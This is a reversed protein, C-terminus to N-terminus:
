YSQGWMVYCNGIQETFFCKEECKNINYKFPKCLTKINKGHSKMLLKIQEETEKDEFWPVVVLRNQKINEIFNEMNNCIVVHDNLKTTAINLMDNQIDNLIQPITELKELELDNKQKNYRKVIRVTNKAIDYMGVEIRIPIGQQEWYNYKWGPTHETRSDLEVLLNLELLKVYVNNTYELLVDTKIKKNYIPILVIQIPAVKPPIVVGIEDMHTMIMVGISRTTFGWSTQCPHQKEMNEDNYLINFMKAFSYGLNHSTAAQIAKHTSPIYAEVTTTELGGAFKEKETKTGPIVPVALLNGYVKEYIKLINISYQQADDYTKHASHGEQWLFERSRIFPVPDKFEWRVINCWQNIIFPLQTHSTIWKCFHPYIITESTPRVAFQDCKNIETNGCKTIWAVEPAFGEIHNEEIELSKKSVFLPFYANKVGVKKFEKDIELKINEWIQFSNPRLVYCGSIDSYEFMEANQLATIYDM